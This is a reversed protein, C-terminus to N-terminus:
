CCHPLAPSWLGVGGNAWSWAEPQPCCLGSLQMLFNWKGTPLSTLTCPAGAAEERVAGGQAFGLGSRHIQQGELQVQQRKRQGSASPSHNRESSGAEVLSLAEEM